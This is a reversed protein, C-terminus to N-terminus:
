CSTSGFYLLVDRMCAGHNDKDEAGKAPFFEKLGAVEARLPAATSLVRSWAGSFAQMLICTSSFM